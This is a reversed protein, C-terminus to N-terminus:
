KTLFNIHKKERLSNAFRHAEDIVRMLLYFVNSDAKIDTEKINGDFVFIKKGSKDLSILPIKSNFNGWVKAVSSLQGKGGDILVLDPKSLLSKDENKEYVFYEILDCTDTCHVTAKKLFEPVNKLVRFGFKEYFDANEKKCGIYIRRCKSRGVLSHLLLHGLHKGRMKPSVWLSSIVDKDGNHILRGTGVIEDDVELLLFDKMVMEDSYLDEKKLIAEVKEKDKKLGKRVSIGSISPAYLYKLRRSLVEILSAYDDVKRDKLSRINFSRYDGNKPEGNEFVAMSGVTFEGSLHSIDYGEIRKIKKDIKLTKSIELLVEKPDFKNESEWKVTMKRCFHEANKCSMDVLESKEGRKPSVIKVGLWKELEIKESIDFPVLVSVPLSKCEGYYNKLFSILVEDLDDSSADKANLIFNESDTLKGNRVIFLNVFVKGLGVYLGVVDQNVDSVNSIKQRELIDNMASIKDRIKAAEEFKRDKVASEIKKKLMDVIWDSDGDLFRTVGEILVGYDQKKCVGICPAVCANIHYQLCPYKITKKYVEVGDGMSKIGLDCDRFKFFDKLVDLTRKVKSMSTKPGYYKSGDKEVKRTIYVGPFDEGTTIKIYCFNKDDKLLINYRPRLDKILNLELVMAELESDTCIYNVDVVNSIMKFIRTTLEATRRFYSGVRKKLDKAKGVYLVVGDKGIMKYVGPKSPIKNLFKQAVM